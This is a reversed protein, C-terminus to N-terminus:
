FKNDIFIIDNIKNQIASEQLHEKENAIGELTHERDKWQPRKKILCDLIKKNDREILFGVGKIVQAGLGILYSKKGEMASRDHTSFFRKSIPHHAEEEDGLIDDLEDESIKNLDLNGRVDVFEPDAFNNKWFTSKGSCMSGFIFAKRDKDKNLYNRICARPFEGHKLCNCLNEGDETKPLCRKVEFNSEM